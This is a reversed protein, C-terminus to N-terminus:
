YCELGPRTCCVHRTDHPFKQFTALRMTVAFLSGNGEHSNESLIYMFLHLLATETLFLFKFM